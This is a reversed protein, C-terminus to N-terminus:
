TRIWHGLSSQSLCEKDERPLTHAKQCINTQGYFLVIVMQLKQFNRNQFVESQLHSRYEWAHTQKQGNSM